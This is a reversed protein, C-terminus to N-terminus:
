VAAPFEVIVKTGFGEQSEIKIVGNNLTTLEKCLALGLGSGIEGNTGITAENTEFKLLTEINEPKIGRGTDSIILRVKGLMKESTITIAGGQPTFKVANSVLNRVITQIMDTNGLIYTQKGANIDLHISKVATSSSFLDVNNSIIKSLDIRENDFKHLYKAKTSWELLNQLLHFTSQSLTNLITLYRKRDAENLNTENEILDLLGMINGVPGRLDHGIISLFKTKAKLQDELETNLRINVATLFGFTLAIMTFGSIIHLFVTSENIILPDFNPNTIIIYVNLMMLIMFIAYSFANLLFVQRLHKQTSDIRLMEVIGLVCYTILFLLHLSIQIRPYHFIPVFIITQLIDLSPIGIVIWKNIKKGKFQWIGALYIYLGVTLLIPYALNAFLNGLSFFAKIFLGIGVIIAGSAWYKAGYDLSKKQAFFLYFGTILSIGSNMITLLLLNSM